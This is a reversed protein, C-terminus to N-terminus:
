YIDLHELTIRLDEFGSSNFINFMFTSSIKNDNNHEYYSLDNYYNFQYPARLSLIGFFYSSDWYGGLGYLFVLYYSPHVLRIAESTSRNIEFHFM